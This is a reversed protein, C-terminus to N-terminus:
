NSLVGLWKALASIIAIVVSIVAFIFLANARLSREAEQVRRQLEPEDINGCGDYLQSLSVGLEQAYQKLEVGRLLKTHRRFLVQLTLNM